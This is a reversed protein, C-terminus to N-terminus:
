KQLYVACYEGGAPFSGHVHLHVVMDEIGAM